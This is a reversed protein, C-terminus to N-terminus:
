RQRQQNDSKNSAAAEKVADTTISSTVHVDLGEYQQSQNHTPDNFEGMAAAFAEKVFEGPDFGPTADHLRFMTADINNRLDQDNVSQKLLDLQEIAGVKNGHNEKLINTVTLQIEQAMTQNVDAGKGQKLSDTAGAAEAIQDM